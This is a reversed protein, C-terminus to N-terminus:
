LVAPQKARWIASFGDSSLALYLDSLAHVCRDRPLRTAEAARCGVSFKCSTTGARLLVLARRAESYRQGPDSSISKKPYVRYGGRM